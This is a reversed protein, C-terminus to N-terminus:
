AGNTMDAHPAHARAVLTIQDADRETYIEDTIDDVRFRVGYIRMGGVGLNGHDEVITAEISESGFPIRVSDGVRFPGPKKPPSPDTFRMNLM